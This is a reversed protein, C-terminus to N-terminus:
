RPSSVYHECIREGNGVCNGGAAACRRASNAAKWVADVHFAESGRARYGVEAFPDDHEPDAPKHGLFTEPIEDVRGAEHPRLGANRQEALSWEGLVEPTRRIVLADLENQQACDGIDRRIQSAGIDHCEWRPPLADRVCKEFSQRGSAGNYHSGDASVGLHNAVPIMRKKDWSSIRTSESRYELMCEACHFHALAASIENDLPVVPPLV